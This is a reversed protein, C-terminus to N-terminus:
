TQTHIYTRINMNDSNFNHEHSTTFLTHIHLCHTYIYTHIYTYIYIYIYVYICIYLIMALTHMCVHIMALTHMCVYAHMCVNDMIMVTLFHTSLQNCVTHIYAELIMSMYTHMCVNDYMHIYAHM